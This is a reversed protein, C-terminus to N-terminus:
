FTSGGRIRDGSELTLYFDDQSDWVSLVRGYAGLIMGTRIDIYSQPDDPKGVLWSNGSRILRWDTLFEDEPNAVLDEAVGADLQSISPVSLHRKADSIAIRDAQMEPLDQSFLSYAASEDIQTKNELLASMQRQLEMAVDPERSSTLNYLEEIKSATGRETTVDTESVQADWIHQSTEAVAALPLGICLTAAVASLFSKM